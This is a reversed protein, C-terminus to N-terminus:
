VRVQDVVGGYANRLALLQWSGGKKGEARLCICVQDVVGSEANRLALSADKKTYKAVTGDTPEPLATTKGVIIDEGSM